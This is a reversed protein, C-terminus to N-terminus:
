GCNRGGGFMVSLCSSSASPASPSCLHVSISHLYSDTISMRYLGEWLGAGTRPCHGETSSGTLLHQKGLTPLQQNPTAAWLSTQAHTSPAPDEVVTSHYQSPGFFPWSLQYFHNLWSHLFKTKRRAQQDPYVRHCSWDQATPVQPIYNDRINIGLWGLLRM